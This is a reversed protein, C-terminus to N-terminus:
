PIQYKFLGMCGISIVRGPGESSQSRWAWSNFSVLEEAMHNDEMWFLNNRFPETVKSSDPNPRIIKEFLDESIKAANPKGCAVIDEPKLTRAEDVFYYNLDTDYQEGILPMSVGISGKGYRQPPDYVMPAKPNKALLFFKRYIM